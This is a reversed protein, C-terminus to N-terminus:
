KKPLFCKTYDRLAGTFTIEKESATIWVLGIIPLVFGTIMGTALKGSDIITRALADEQVALQKELELLREQSDAYELSGTKLGALYTREREIQEMLITKSRM